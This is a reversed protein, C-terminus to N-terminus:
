KPQIVKLNVAHTEGPKIEVREGSGRNREPFEPDYYEAAPSPPMAFAFYEGPPVGRIEYAGTADAQGVFVRRRFKRDDLSQAILAVIMGEPSGDSRVVQGTVRAVDTGLKLECDEIKMGTSIELGTSLVDQGECRAEKLYANRSPANFAFRYKSPAVNRLVFKSDEDISTGPQYISLDDSLLAIHMAALNPKTDGDATVRGSVEGANGVQVVVQVDADEIRVKAYGRRESRFDSDYVAGIVTYEGPELAGITFTGDAPNATYMTYFESTGYGASYRKTGTGTAPDIIRGRIFYTPVSRVVFDVRPTESGAHVAIRRADDRSVVGPYFLPSYAM